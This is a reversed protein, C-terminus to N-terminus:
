RCRKRKVRLRVMNSNFCRKGTTMRSQFRDENRFFGYITLGFGVLLQIAEVVNDFNGSIYLLAENVKDLIPINIGFASLAILVGVVQLVSRLISKWKETNIIQRDETSLTSVYAPFLKSAFVYIFFPLLYVLAALASPTFPFLIILAFGIILLLVSIKTNM